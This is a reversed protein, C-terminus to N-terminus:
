TGDHTREGKATTWVQHAADANLVAIGLGVLIDPWGSHLAATLAGTLIMAVNAITDNRASLFAARVLSSGAAHRHARALTIACGLNVALAGAATLSLAFPQPPAPHRIKEWAMWLTALAPGLLVFALLGGLRGRNRLSWGLGVAALLNLSTDELFDVSDSLLSVSGIHRAVTFEVAFYILNAFAVLLVIRRLTANASM